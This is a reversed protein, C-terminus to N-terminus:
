HDTIITMMMAGELAGLLFAKTYPVLNHYQFVEWMKWRAVHEVEPDYVPIDGGLDPLPLTEWMEQPVIGVHWYVIWDGGRQYLKGLPRWQIASDGLIPVEKRATRDMANDFLQSAVRLEEDRVRGGIANWSHEQAEPHTKRILLVEHASPPMLFGAVYAATDNFVPVEKLFPHLRSTSVIAITMLSSVDTTGGIKFGYGDHRM